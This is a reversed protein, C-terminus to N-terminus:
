SNVAQIVNGSTNLGWMNDHDIIDLIRVVYLGVYGQRIASM